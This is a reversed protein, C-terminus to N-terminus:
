HGRPIQTLTITVPAVKVNITGVSSMLMKGNTGNWGYRRASMKRCVEPFTSVGNDFKFYSGIELDRFTM